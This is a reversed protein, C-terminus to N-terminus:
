FNVEINTSIDLVHPAFCVAYVEEYNKM